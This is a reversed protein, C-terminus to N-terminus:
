GTSRSTDPPAVEVLYGRDLYWRVPRDFVVMPGGGPQAFWAAALGEQVAPPLPTLVVYAHYSSDRAAPPESRQPMSTGLAFLHHGTQPGLADLAEGPRLGNPGPQGGRAEVAARIRDAAAEGRQRLDAPEPATAPRQSVLDRALEVAAPADTAAFVAYPAFKGRGVGGLLVQDRYPVLVWPGEPPAQATPLSPDAAVALLHAPLGTAAVLRVLQSHM